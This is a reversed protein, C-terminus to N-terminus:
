EHPPTITLLKLAAALARPRHPFTLIALCGMRLVALSGLRSGRPLQIVVIDCDFLYQFIDIFKMGYDVLARLNFEGISITIDRKAEGDKWLNYCM